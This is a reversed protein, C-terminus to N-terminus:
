NIINEKKYKLSTVFGSAPTISIPTFVVCPTMLVGPVRARAVLNVKESPIM